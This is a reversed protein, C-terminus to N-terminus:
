VYSRVLKLNYWLNNKPMQIQISAFPLKLVFMWQLPKSFPKNGHFIESISCLFAIALNALM